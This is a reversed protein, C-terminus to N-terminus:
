VHQHRQCLKNWNHVLTKQLHAAHQAHTHVHGHGRECAIVPCCAAISVPLMSCYKCTHSSVHLHLSKCKFKEHAIRSCWEFLAIRFIRIRFAVWMSLFAATSHICGEGCLARARCYAHIYFINQYISMLASYQATLQSQRASCASHSVSASWLFSLSSVTHVGTTLKFVIQRFGKLCLVLRQLSM